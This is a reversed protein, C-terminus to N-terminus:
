PVLKQKERYIGGFGRNGGVYLRYGSETTGAPKLLGISDYHHLTRISVGSLRSMEKVTIM